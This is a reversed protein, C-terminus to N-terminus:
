IELSLQVTTQEPQLSLLSVARTAQSMDSGFCTTQKSNVKIFASRRRPWEVVTADFVEMLRLLADRERMPTVNV